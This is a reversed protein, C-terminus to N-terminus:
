RNYVDAVSKASGIEKLTASFKLEADTLTDVLTQSVNVIDDKLIKIETQDATISVANWTNEVKSSYVYVNTKGEVQQWHDALTYSIGSNEELNDDITLFLYAAIPTKGTIAIYPDKPVDLGPILVYANSTTTETQSLTYSGDAQHIAKHELLEVEQALKATVKIKGELTIVTAYKAGVFCVLSIILIALLVVVALHQSYKRKM